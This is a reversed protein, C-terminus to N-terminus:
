LNLYRLLADRLDHFGWDFLLDAAVTVIEQNKEADNMDSREWFEKIWNAANLEEERIQEPKMRLIGYEGSRVHRDPRKPGKKSEEAM